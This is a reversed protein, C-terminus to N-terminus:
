AWVVVRTVLTAPGGVPICAFARFMSTHVTSIPRCRVTFMVATVPSGQRRSRQLGRNNCLAFFPVTRVHLFSCLFEYRTAVAFPRAHPGAANLDASCFAHDILRLQYAMRLMRHTPRILIGIIHVYNHLLGNFLLFHIASTHAFQNGPVDVCTVLTARECSRLRLQRTSQQFSTSV